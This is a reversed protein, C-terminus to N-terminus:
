PGLEELLQPIDNRIVDWVILPNLDWYVHVVRNRLSSMEKWAIRKFKRKTAETVHTATEGIILLQLCIGSRLLPDAVFDPLLKGRAFSVILASAARIDDLLAIDNRKSPRPM